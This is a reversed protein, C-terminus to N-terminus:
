GAVSRVAMDLAEAVGGAEPPAVFSRALARAEPEAHDVAVPWGVIQMAPADNFGDGVYMVESLPIGYAGAITGVAQGKNVGRRTLSIFTTDPMSPALSPSVELGAHPEALAAEAMAHPLLWQARVIPGELSEFPRAIFAIGLLEAHRRLREGDAEAVYTDDAYLELSRGSQRARAILMRVADDGLVASRSGGSALDIISAGNQFCHLGSPEVREALDRTAGFGPRGSCLALRIGKRRAGAMARWVEPHVDGSAGVLTGDVDICVLSIM